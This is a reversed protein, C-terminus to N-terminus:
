GGLLRRALDVVPAPDDAAFRGSLVGPRCNPDARVQVPPGAPYRFVLTVDTGSAEPDVMSCSGDGRHRDLGNVVRAAEQVREADDVIATGSPGVPGCVTVSVAGAPVIVRDDGLRGLRHMGGCPGGLIEEGPPVWTEGGAWAGREFAAELQGGLNAGSAFRGNWSQDCANPDKAGSVWVVGDPYTLGLLYRTTPGGMATCTRPAGLRERSLWTLDAALADLGGTLERSGDLPVRYRADPSGTDALGDPYRCVLAATPAREPVMRAGGDPVSPSGPVWPGGRGSTTTPGYTTPCTSASTAAAPAPSLSPLGGSRVASTAVAALVAAAAALVALGATRRRRHRDRLRRVRDLRDPVDPLDPPLGRLAAVLDDDHRDADHSM